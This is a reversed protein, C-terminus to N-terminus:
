CLLRVNNEQLESAESIKVKEANANIEYKKLLSQFNTKLEANLFAQHELDKKLLLNMDQM